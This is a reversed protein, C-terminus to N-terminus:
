VQPPAGRWVFIHLTGQALKQAGCFVEGRVIYTDFFEDTKETRIVLEGGAYAAGLIEVDRVSVLYGGGDVTLGKQIRRYSECVGFGQAFLECYAEPALTGDERLFLHGQGVHARAEGKEGEIATIEDVLLMPPRHPILTIVPPFAVM